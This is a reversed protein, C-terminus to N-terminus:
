EMEVKKLIFSSKGFFPLQGSILPMFWHYVFHGLYKKCKVFFIRIWYPLFIPIKLYANMLDIYLAVKKMEETNSSQIIINVSREKSFRMLYMDFICIDTASIVIDPKNDNIVKKALKCLYRNKSFINTKPGTYQGIPIIRELKPFLKKNKTVKETKIDLEESLLITPYIQSIEYLYGILTSRFARPIHTYFIVKKIKKNEGFM